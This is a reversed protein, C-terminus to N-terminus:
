FAIKWKDGEKIRMQYYASTLDLQTFQKARGLCDLFEGVLPLSYRNKITINNLGWYNVCLRLSGDLKKDFLIPAGVPSKSPRIFSNALNTKIYTKLTELEIPRLNYIPRYLLQKGEELDIAYTNIETHEPLKTALDPSFVDAFDSYKTLVKTPAEKAILSSIQPEQFSHIDLSALPTSRLSAVHVVYTEHEPDLAAAIFEKKGVLKVRRTTLLVKETTNTRQRLERGSFDIDVGSLTLFPMGLVLEPSINAVLFTEKSFRVRNAKDEVSFAAVVIGYTDLTTGDIEQAGVDTPRIPLGLQKAFTPYIANVKSGLDILTQGQAKSMSKFQVLYHILLRTKSGRRQYWNDIHLDGLSISTKQSGFSQVSAQM